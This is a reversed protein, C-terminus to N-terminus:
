ELGIYALVVAAKSLNLQHAKGIGSKYIDSAEFENARSIAYGVLSVVIFWSM